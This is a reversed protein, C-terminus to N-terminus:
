VRNSAEPGRVVRSQKFSSEGILDKKHVQESVLVISYYSSSYVKMSNRAGYEQLMQLDVQDSYTM